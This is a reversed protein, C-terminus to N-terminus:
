IKVKAPGWSQRGHVYSIRQLKKLADGWLEARLVGYVRLLAVILLCGFPTSSLVYGMKSKSAWKRAMEMAVAFMQDPEAMADIVGDRLAEEATWRHAELLM